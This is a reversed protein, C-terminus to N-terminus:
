LIKELKPAQGLFRGALLCPADRRARRRSIPRAGRARVSHSAGSLAGGREHVSAENVAAVIQLLELFQGAAANVEDVNVRRQVGVAVVFDKPAFWPAAQRRSGGRWLLFHLM